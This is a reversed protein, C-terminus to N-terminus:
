EVIIHNHTMVNWNRSHVLVMMALDQDVDTINERVSTRVLEIGRNCVLVRDRENMPASMSYESFVTGRSNEHELIDAVIDIKAFIFESIYQPVSVGIGESHEGTELEGFYQGRNFTPVSGQGFIDELKQNSVQLRSYPVIITNIDSSMNEYDLLRCTNGGSSMLSLLTDGAPVGDFFGAQDDGTEWTWSELLSIFHSKDQDSVIDDMSWDDLQNKVYGYISNVDRSVVHITRQRIAFVVFVSTSVPLNDTIDSM